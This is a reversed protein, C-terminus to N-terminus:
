KSLLALSQGHLTIFKPLASMTEKHIGFSKLGLCNNNKIQNNSPVSHCSFGHPAPGGWLQMGLFIFMCFLGVFM